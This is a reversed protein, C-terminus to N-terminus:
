TTVRHTGATVEPVVRVRGIAIMAVGDALMEVGLLVGLLVFSADFLNFLVILGLAASVIGSFILAVRYEPQGGAAVLRVIGGTLFVAGAVLTLTVAAVETNNLLFLGLVTLLGGTLASAWFGGKGIRFLAGVLGLVGFLLLMWGLFLVSVTTAFAANGLVILGGIILLAGIAIDWGTRTRVLMSETM